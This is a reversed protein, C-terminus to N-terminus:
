LLEPNVVTIEIGPKCDFIAEYEAETLVSAVKKLFVNLLANIDNGKQSNVINNGNFLNFLEGRMTKLDLVISNVKELSLEESLRSKLLAKLEGTYLLTELESNSSINDMNDNINSYLESLEEYYLDKENSSELWLPDKSWWPIGCKTERVVWLPDKVGGPIVSGYPGYLAWSAAYGNAKWVTCRTDRLIRNATQHCVGNVAYLLVGAKGETGQPITGDSDAICVTIKHDASGGTIKKGGKYGGWCGWALKKDNTTVYTHDALFSVGPIAVPLCWGELKLKTM